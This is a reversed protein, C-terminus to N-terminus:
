TKNFNYAKLLPQQMHHMSFDNNHHKEIKQGSQYKVLCEVWWIGYFDVYGRGGAAVVETRQIFVSKTFFSVGDAL